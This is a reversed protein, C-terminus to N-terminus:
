NGMSEKVADLRFIKRSTQFGVVSNRSKGEEPTRFDNDLGTVEPEDRGGRSETM